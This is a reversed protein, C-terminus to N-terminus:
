SAMLSITQQLYLLELVIVTPDAELIRIIKLISLTLSPVVMKFPQVDQHLRNLHDILVILVNTTVTSRLNTVVIYIKCNITRDHVIEVWGVVFTVYLLSMM